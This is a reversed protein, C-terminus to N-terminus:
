LIIEIDEVSYSVRSTFTKIKSLEQLAGQTSFIDEVVNGNVLKRIFKKFEDSYVQGTKAKLTTELDMVTIGVAYLDNKEFAIRKIKDATDKINICTSISANKPVNGNCLYKLSANV